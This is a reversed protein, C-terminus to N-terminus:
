KLDYWVLLSGCPTKVIKIYAKEYGGFFLREHIKFYCEYRYKRDSFCIWDVLMADETSTGPFVKGEMLTNLHREFDEVFHDSVRNGKLDVCVFAM